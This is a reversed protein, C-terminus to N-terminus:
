LCIGQFCIGIPLIGPPCRPDIFANPNCGECVFGNCTLGGNCTCDANCLGCFGGGLAECTGNGSQDTPTCTQGIPCSSPDAINCAGGGSSPPQCQGNQCTYGQPCANPDQACSPPQGCVGDLCIKGAPCDANGICQVCCGAICYPANANAGVGCVGPTAPDCPACAQCTGNANCSKGGPCDSDSLCEACFCNQTNWRPRSTGVCESGDRGGCANGVCQGTALNCVEGAQCSNPQGPRDTCGPKCQFDVPDCFMGPQCTVEDCSTISRIVCSGTMMDCVKGAPCSTANCACARNAGCVLGEGCEMSNRCGTACLRAGTDCYKGAECDTDMSCGEGCQGDAFCVQGSPCEADSSCSGSPEVCAGALNCIKGAPCDDKTSCTEMVCKGASCVSPADCDSSSVCEPRSCVSRGDGLVLCIQGDLCNAVGDDGVCPVSGCEKRALLCVEGVKCDTDFSCATPKNAVEEEGCGALGFGMVMVLGAAAKVASSRVYADFMM